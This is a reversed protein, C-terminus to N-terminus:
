VMVKGNADVIHKGKYNDNFEQDESMGSPLSFTGPFSKHLAFQFNRPSLIQWSARYYAPFDTFPDTIFKIFWHQSVLFGYTNWLYLTRGGVVAITAVLWLDAVTIDYKTFFSKTRGWQTLQVLMITPLTFYLIVIKVKKATDFGLMAQEARPHSVVHLADADSSFFFRM